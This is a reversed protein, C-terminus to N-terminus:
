AAASREESAERVLVLVDATIDTLIKEATNGITFGSLGHRAVSGVIVLDADIRNALRPIVDGAKGQQVHAQSRNIELKKAVDPPHVYRDSDPYACVAHLEIDKNTGRLRRAFDIIANNLKQHGEDPANFDIAALVKRLDRGPDHKVLLLASRLSRILRRDSSTLANPRGSARKVVMDVSNAEAFERVADQWDEDWEVNAKVDVGEHEHQAIIEDLWASKSRLEASRFDSADAGKADAYICLFAYVEANQQAKAISIAKRLSWQEPRTPDIVALIRTRGETM